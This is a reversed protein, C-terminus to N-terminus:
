PTTSEPADEQTPQAELWLSREKLYWDENRTDDEFYGAVAKERDSETIGMLEEAEARFRKGQAADSEATIAVHAAGQAYLELARPKNGLQWHAMAYFMRHERDGGDGILGDAEEFAEIAPAYEGQAYLAVGLNNLNNSTAGTFKIGERAYKVAEGGNRQSRDEATSFAWTRSACVVALLRKAEDTKPNEEGHLRRDIEYMERSIREADELNGHRLYAVLLNHRVSRTGSADEGFKQKRSEVLPAYAMIAESYREQRLHSDAVIQDLKDRASADLNQSGLHKQMLEDAEQFREQKLYQNGLNKICTVANSYNVGFARQGVEIVELYAAESEPYREQGSYANGLGLMAGLYEKHKDGLLRKQIAVLKELIQASEDYQRRHKLMLALKSMTARTRAHEEGYLGIRSELIRRHLDAAEHARGQRFFVDALSEMCILTNPNDPGNTRERIEFLQQFIKAAEVYKGLSYYISGTRYMCNLTLDHEDGFNRQLIVLSRSALEQADAYRRQKRYLKVLDGTATLTEYNEEGLTRLRIDLRDVFLKEAEDYRKRSYYFRGLWTMADLTWRHESGHNEMHTRLVDLHIQEAEDYRGQAVYVRALRTNTLLSEENEGGQIRSFVELCDQLSKEAEALKGQELHIEALNSQAVIQDPHEAGLAAAQIEILREFAQEAKAYSRQNKYVVALNRMTLLTEPHQEGLIRSRVDLAQNFLAEADEYKQQERYAFGLNNQVSLTHPHEEGLVRRQTENLALYLKEAEDYRGMDTYINALGSLVILTNPHEPGLSKECLSRAQLTKREAEEYRAQKEYALALNAMSALTSPHASGLTREKSELARRLLAEAAENRNQSIYVRALESLATSTKPHTEGLTRRRIELVHELISEADDFKGQADYIQALITQTHLTRRHDEGLTAIRLSLTEIGLREADAYRGAQRYVQALNNMTNVTDLHQAGVVRRQLALTEQLRQASQVYLGLQGELSGLNETYLLTIPDEAGKVQITLEMARQQHPLAAAYRGLAEYTQAITNQLTAEVMPQDAFKGEIGQAALDLIESLKVNPNPTENPDAKGLLDQELFAIVAQSIAVEQDAKQKAAEADARQTFAVQAQWVAVGTGSILALGVACVMVLLVANRKILKSTRYRLSPPCAEVPEDNLYRNIDAAIATASGYRRSRDKDLAKMAIWDLEGQVTQKLKRPDVSRNESITSSDSMELTSLRASPRPPDVERIVRCMEEHSAQKLEERAFPTTGSILEYLMVGLSYVDSRTDVDVGSLSTQEPSMYLPTGIMQAFNSYVTQGSAQGDTAKAIGFDIVKAVPRGDIETILVNSPKLDRHIIGKQHAHEVAACVTTFLELRARTTMKAQDCYETIPIGRILEMVFFPRGEPTSGADIVKAINPHDMLALTQREAGFRAIVQKTDMGPKIIKLAVKRRVPKEQEAVFVSGMGGEGLPERVTYVGITDGPNVASAVEADAYASVVDAPRTLFSKPNEHAALLGLIRARMADDSGCADVVFQTQQDAPVQLADLFVSEDNM